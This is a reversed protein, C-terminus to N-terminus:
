LQDKDATRAKRSRLNTQLAPSVPVTLKKEAPKVQVPAYHMIPRAKPVLQKRLERIEEEERRRQEEAQKRQLEAMEREKQKLHEDFERRKLAREGSHLKVDATQTLPKTSKKPLFPLVHPAPRSQFERERALKEEEEVLM